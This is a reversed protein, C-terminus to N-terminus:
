TGLFLGATPSRNSINWKEPSAFTCQRRFSSEFGIGHRIRPMTKNQWRRFSSLLDCRSQAFLPFLVPVTTVFFEYDGAARRMVSTLVRIIKLLNFRLLSCQPWELQSLLM